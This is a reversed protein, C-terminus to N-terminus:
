RQVLEVVKAIARSLVLALEMIQVSAASQLDLQLVTRVEKMLAKVTM